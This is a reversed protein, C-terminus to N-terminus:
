TKLTRAFYSSSCIELSEYWTLKYSPRIVGPSVAVKDKLSHYVLSIASSININPKVVPTKATSVPRKNADLALRRDTSVSASLLAPAGIQASLPNVAIRLIGV